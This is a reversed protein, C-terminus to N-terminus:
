VLGTGDVTFTYPSTSPDDTVITVTATRLGTATPDFTVTFTTAGGEAVVVADPQDSVTFDGAHTGTITVSTINLDALGSNIIAFTGVFTEEGSVSAAVFRTGDEFRPTADGDTIEFEPEGPTVQDRGTVVMKPLEAGTGTIDFVYPNEDTDDNAITITAHHAGLGSPTFTVEFTATGAAAVTDAPLVTVVFDAANVGSVEVVPTGTLNLADGGTNAITFTRTVSSGGEAEAGIGATGFDTHDDASPADDGNVISAGNGQVDMEPVDSGYGTIAFTYPSTSTDDSTISVTATRIGVATPDFTVTFTTTGDDAPVFTGPQATVTFDAAHAGTISVTGISLYNLGTNTITFTRTVTQDLVTSATGFDTGDDETPAVDGDSIVEDDTGSVVMKPLEAGTGSIAFNYPNEDSDDSAISITATRTGLAGPTFTVQFTTTGAAAVSDAPLVTVEFDDANAGGIEVLPTGTLNLEAVGTNQITFTRVISSLGEDENAGYGATGFNTHDSTSPTVDGDAISAGNGQVNIEPVNDIGTGTIHFDYPNENSDDNAINITAFRMGAVTPDFEVTFTTSDGAAVTADPADTVTFEAAATGTFTIAGVTLASTGTNQITFTRSATGGEVLVSSSFHTHDALTSGADGDVITVSNGQVNIEPAETGTGKIAFTFTGEADPDDSTVTVTANKVGVSTPDFRIQFFSYGGAAVTASPMTVVTFQDADDGSLAVKDGSLTLVHDGANGIIFTRTVAAGTTADTSGFDTYNTTTATAAGDVISVGNGQVDIDRVYGTGSINFNYPGENPDNNAITVTATRLGTASPNFTIQFVSSTGVGVSSVPMQTVTFDAAHTGSLAVKTAGTLNLPLSGLNEIVFQHAVTGGTVDTEGFSTGDGAAPTADGDTITVSGDGGRVDMEAATVGTGKISFNYPNENPDSNAISLTANRVGAASPNFEVTFTTSGGAAIEDAVPQTVTFDAANAGGKAVIPTDSLRLTATGTNYITFTRTVTGSNLETNGFDTHDAASATADGDVISVNNGKIDIEPLVGTGKINFNYPGENSDNNAINIVANRVGVASPEFTVVFTLDDGGSAISAASPQTTVTFDAANAGTVTVRPTGTLNLATSGTNKITFTMEQTHGNALVTGFDTDDAVSPTIDGDAISAGNGQVDIEPTELGTGKVAFDYAMKDGLVNIMAVTLTANRVGVATPEFRVVFTASGGVAITDTAPQTLVTFDAAAVGGVTVRDAELAELSLAINGTNVITFTRDVTSGVTNASGFDTHDTTAATLDHDAIVVNNGKVQGDAVTGTGKINFNYPSENSDNNTITVIANRVGAASPNFTIQFGSVGGAAVTQSPALAVTFDAANAGSITVRSGAVAALNLTGSGTNRIEFQNTESFGTVPVSGFDTDDDTAPTADGDVIEIPGLGGWVAIEPTATGTGKISFNYPNENSDDNAISLTANRVGAASPNFRVVFTASAGAAITDTNPQTIVEFDLEDVGGVVVRESELTALTLASTGTNYITFTRNVTGSTIDASGFDTHDTTAATADGDVISVNNGKVDIEPAIATGKINFNYPSENGDNNVITVIANRVGVATPEFTIVFTLSDEGDITVDAPQTTVVFDAANTGSIAVRSGETAHLTLAANGTNLITFTHAADAGLVVNGFDTDDAVSPTIDGDAISTANGQVDIENATGIGMIAFTYTGENVDSNQITVTANREGVASPDFKINFTISGGAAVTAAPQAVVTFDAANAGSIAVKPTGTLTLTSAGTNHLTFTRTVTGGALATAGFDTLDDVSPTADGSVISEGDGRVDAEADSFKMLMGFDATESPNPDGDITEAAFVMVQKGANMSGAIVMPGGASLTLSASWTGDANITYTGSEVEVNTGDTLLVHGGTVAGADDFSVQGTGETTQLHWTGEIDSNAYVGSRKVLVTFGSDDGSMTTDTLAILDKSANMNGTQALGAGVGPLAMTVVGAASLTYTGTEDAFDDDSNIGTWDADTIAGAASLVFAGKGAPSFVEWTGAGHSVATYGSAARRIALGTEPDGSDDGAATRFFMADKAGNIAGIAYMQPDEADTSNLTMGVRGEPSVKYSGSTIAISSGDSGLLTAASITGATLTLNGREYVNAVNWTGNADANRVAGVTLVITSGWNNVDSSEAVDAGADAMVSLYYTGAQTPATFTFEQSFATNAPMWLLNMNAVVTDGTTIETDDSGYLTVDFASGAATAGNNQIELPITISQGPTAVYWLLDAPADIALDVALMLRPELAELGAWSQKDSHEAHLKEAQVTKAQKASRNIRNKRIHRM